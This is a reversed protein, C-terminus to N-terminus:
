SPPWLAAGLANVFREPDGYSADAYRKAQASLDMRTTLDSVTDVQELLEAVDRFCQGGGARAHRAAASSDPVLIPTGFRMSEICGRAVIAGPAVDITVRAHALLRWLDMRTDIAVTGRRVRGLWASATANEVVVVHTTHFAATLWAVADTPPDPEPDGTRDSLVLLYDTFGFGNHRHQSALQNVPVHLGVFDDGDPTLALTRIGGATESPLVARVPGTGAELLGALDTTWEDVVIPSSAPNSSWPAQGAEPWRGDHGMGVLDFAGDAQSFGEGAPVLISVPASRSAAGALARVVFSLESPAGLWSRSLFLAPPRDGRETV